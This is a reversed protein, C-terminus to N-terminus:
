ALIELLGQNRDVRADGLEVEFNSIHFTALCPEIPEVRIQYRGPPASIQMLEQLYHNTWRWTRENFLEDDLYIRYAPQVGEWDCDINFLVRVFKPEM